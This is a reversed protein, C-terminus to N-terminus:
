CLCVEEMHYIGGKMLRVVEGEMCGHVYAEGLVRFTNPRDHDKVRRLLIPTSCGPFIAFADGPLVMDVDTTRHLNFPVWAFRMTTTTALRRGLATRIWSQYATWYDPFKANSPISGTFYSSFPRGGINLTDNAALWRSWRKYFSGESAFRPWDVRKTFVTEADSASKPLHLLACSDKSSQSRNGYLAVSLAMATELTTGYASGQNKTQIITGPVFEDKASPQGGLGDVEDFIICSCVLTSQSRGHFSVADFPLGLSANYGHESEHGPRYHPNELAAHYEVGPRSDRIRGQWTWDPVWSPANQPGWINADRLLELCKYVEIFARGAQTFISSADESYDVVIADAFEKPILGLLGILKDRPDQSEAFNAIELLRGLSLRQEALKEPQSLIWIDKWIHHLPGTNEWERDDAPDIRKRDMKVCLNKVHWLYLHIVELGYCLRAWDVSRNGCFMVTQRAGLAIEQIIWLRQWYPRLTFANLALWPGTGLYTPDELLRDRLDECSRKSGHYNAISDILELAKSSNDAEPGVFGVVSWATTYLHGMRAVERNREPIDNQNICLADVWLQFRSSFCNTSRLVELASHLNAHISVDVGNIRIMQTKASDGWAYSLAAFDGWKFRYLGEHPFKPVASESLGEQNLNSNNKFECWAVIREGHSAPVSTESLFHGYTDTTDALSVCHMHCQLTGDEALDRLITILRLGNDVMELLPQAYLAAM